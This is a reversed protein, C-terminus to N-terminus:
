LKENPLEGKLEEGLNYHLLEVLVTNIEASTYQEKDTVITGMARILTLKLNDMRKRSLVEYDM